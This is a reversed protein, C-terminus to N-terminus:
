SIMSLLSKLDLFSGVKMVPPFLPRSDWISVARTLWSEVGISVIRRSEARSSWLWCSGSNTGVIWSPKRFIILACCNFISVWLVLSDILLLWCGIFEFLYTEFPFCCHSKIIAWAFELMKSPSRVMSCLFSWTAACNRVFSMLYSYNKSTTPLSASRSCWFGSNM